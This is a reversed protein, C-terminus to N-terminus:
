GVAEIVDVEPVRERLAQELGAVVTPLSAPCSACAAALRVSAIGDAVEVVEVAAADVGFAPAADRLVAEVRARLDTM